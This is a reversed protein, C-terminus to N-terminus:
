PTRDERDPSVADALMSPLVLRARTGTEGPGRSLVLTANGAYVTALRRAINGLGHEDRILKEGPESLGVGDDVVDIRLSAGEVATTVEIRGGRALEHVPIRVVQMRADHALDPVLESGPQLVRASARAALLRLPGVPRM